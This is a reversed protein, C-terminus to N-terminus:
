LQNLSLLPVRWRTIERRRTGHQLWGTQVADIRASSPDNTAGLVVCAYGKQVSCLAQPWQARLWECQQAFTVGNLVWRATLAGTTDLAFLVPLWAFRSFILRRLRVSQAHSFHGWYSALMARLQELAQPSAVICLHQAKVQVHQASWARLKEMCHVVVRRRVTLHSARVVYGLFDAGQPLPSLQHAAKLCLHLREHLFAKIQAHWGQLQEPGDALLVFDDVYRVYHRVKLTHKVFQDLENLVVNAFFQSSL